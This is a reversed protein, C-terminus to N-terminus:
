NIKKNSQIGYEIELKEKLKRRAENLHWKSTGDSIGLYAAIEKHNYGEMVFMNFVLATNKPLQQVLQLIEKATIQEHIHDSIAIHEAKDVEVWQQNKFQTNRRCQDLCTNIVIRKVWGNFSGQFQYQKIKAFVKLMAENFLAAADQENTTYRSCVSMMEPYLQMYLAEQSAAQQAVCGEIIHQQTQEVTLKYTTYGAVYALRLKPEFHNTRTDNSKSIILLNTFLKM